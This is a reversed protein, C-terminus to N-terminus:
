NFLLRTSVTRKLAKIKGQCSDTGGLYFGKYKDNINGIGLYNTKKGLLRFYHTKTKPDKIRKFLLIKPFLNMKGACIETTSNVEMHIGLEDCLDPPLIDLKTELLKNSLALNKGCAERCWGWNKTFSPKAAEVM